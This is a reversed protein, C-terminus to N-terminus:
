PCFFVTNPGQMSSNVYLVQVLGLKWIPSDFCIRAGGVEEPANKVREQVSFVNKDFYKIKKFERQRM